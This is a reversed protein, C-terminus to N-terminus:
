AEYPTISRGVVPLRNRLNNSTFILELWYKMSLGSEKLMAGAMGHLTQGLREVAGNTRPNRPVTAEWQIGHKNRYEEFAHSDYERGSDIWLRRIRNSRHKNQKCFLDFAALIGDKSSLLIVKSTKDYNDLFTVYYKAEFCNWIYPGSVDSYILDLPYQGPEIKNKHPEIHMKAQSYPPCVDTPPPKSLNIGESM